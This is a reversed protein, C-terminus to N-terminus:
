AKKPVTGKHLADITISLITSMMFLGDETEESIETYLGMLSWEKGSAATIYTADPTLSKGIMNAIHSLLTTKLKISLENLPHM